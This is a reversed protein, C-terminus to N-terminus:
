VMRRVHDRTRLGLMLALRLAIGMYENASELIGKVQEPTYITPIPEEYKPVDPMFLYRSQLIEAM